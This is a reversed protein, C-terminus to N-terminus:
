QQCTRIEFVHVQSNVELTSTYFREWLDHTNTRATHKEPGDTGPLVRTHTHTNLCLARTQLPNSHWTLVGGRIRPVVPSLFFRQKHKEENKMMECLFVSLSACHSRELFILYTKDGTTVASLNRCTSHTKKKMNVKWAICIFLFTFKFHSRATTMMLCVVRLTSVILDKILKSVLHVSNLHTAVDRQGINSGFSWSFFDGSFPLGRLRMGRKTRWGKLGFSLPDGADSEGSDSSSPFSHSTLESWELLVM